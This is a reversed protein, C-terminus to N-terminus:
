TKNEDIGQCLKVSCSALRHLISKKLILNKIKNRNKLGPFLFNKDNGGL